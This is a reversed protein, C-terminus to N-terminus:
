VNAAVFTAIASFLMLGDVIFYYFIYGQKKLSLFYVFLVVAGTILFAITQPLSHLYFRLMVGMIMYLFFTSLMILKLVPRSVDTALSKLGHVKDVVSDRSDFIACLMLMFLFRTIFLLVVTLDAEMLNLQAPIAITVYTWTLALLVTKVFGAKVTRKLAKVPWL